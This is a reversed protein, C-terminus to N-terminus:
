LLGRKRAFQQGVEYEYRWGYRSAKGYVYTSALTLTEWFTRDHHRKKNEQKRYWVVYHTLEHLLRDKMANKDRRLLWPRTTVWIRPWPVTWFMDNDRFDFTVIEPVPCYFLRCLRRVTEMENAIREQTQHIRM